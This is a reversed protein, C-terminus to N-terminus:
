PVFVQEEELQEVIANIRNFDDSLAKMSFRIKTRDGGHLNQFDETYGRLITMISKMPMDNLITCVAYSVNSNIELMSDTIWEENDYIDFMTTQFVMRFQDFLREYINIITQITMLSEPCSSIMIHNLRKINIQENQDSARALAMYSALKEPIGICMLSQIRDRNVTKSLIFLLEHVYPDNDKLTIYDYSLKNCCLRESYTLQVSNLVQTLISIFKPSTFVNLYEADRRELIDNLISKYSIRVLDYLEREGMGGINSMQAKFATQSIAPNSTLKQEIYTEKGKEEVDKLLKKFM